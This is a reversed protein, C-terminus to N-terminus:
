VEVLASLVLLLSDPDIKNAPEALEKLWGCHQLAATNLESCFWADKMAWDTGFVFAAIAKDDYPKGVQDLVFQYYDSQQTDTCPITVRKLDYGVQYNPGRLQVGAPYGDMVDNRAGLLLGDPMVTDVHSYRGHGFWKIALSGFSNDGAFQMVIAGM